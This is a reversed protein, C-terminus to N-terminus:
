ERRRIITDVLASLPDPASKIRRLGGRVASVQNKVAHSHQRVETPVPEEEVQRITQSRHRAVWAMGGVTALSFVVTLFLEFDNM